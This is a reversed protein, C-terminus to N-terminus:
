QQLTYPSTAVCTRVRMACSVNHNADKGRRQAVDYTNREVLGIESQCMVHPKADLAQTIGINRMHHMKGTKM